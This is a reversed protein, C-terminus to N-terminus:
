KQACFTFFFNAPKRYACRVASVNYKHIIKKLVDSLGRIAHVHHHGDIHSFCIKETELVKKIQADWESYIAEKLEMPFSYNGKIKKTFCNDESTIGYKRLVSSKTLSMGETLNLHVGFSCNPHKEVMKHIDDWYDNNALITSSSIQHNTMAEDIAKNVIPNLGLDDANIIVKIM